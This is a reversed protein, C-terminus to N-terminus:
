MGGPHVQKREQEERITGRHGHSNRSFPIEIIPLNMMQAKPTFRKGATKQCKPCTQCYKKVDQSM